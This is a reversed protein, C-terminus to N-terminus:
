VQSQLVVAKLNDCGLQSWNKPIYPASYLAYLALVIRICHTCNCSISMATANFVEVPKKRGITCEDWMTEIKFCVSPPISM